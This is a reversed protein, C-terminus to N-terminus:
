IGFMENIPVADVAKCTQFDNLITYPKTEEGRSHRNQLTGSLLLDLLELIAGHLLFLAENVGQPM